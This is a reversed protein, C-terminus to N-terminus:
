MFYTPLESTPSGDLLQMGYIYGYSYGACQKVEERLTGWLNDFEQKEEEDLARKGARSKEVVNKQTTPPVIAM